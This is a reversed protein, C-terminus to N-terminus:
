GELPIRGSASLLWCSRGELVAVHLDRGWGAGGDLALRNGHHEPHDVPTHGHVVLRGHDTQDKLFENRIWILDDPDQDALAVGPRIGAHVFIHDDTQYLRPLAALFDRHAPPVAARAAAHNPAQESAAVGYSALTDIGGMVENLWGRGSKVLPSFMQGTDLFELFLQDHNGRLVTWDRGAGIGDILTQIVGRSDPGRDVLDGLFVVPADGGGDAEILSLAHDLKAKHGHIDPIAYIPRTM